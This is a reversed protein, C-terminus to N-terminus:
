RRGTKRTTKSTAHTTVFAPTPSRRELLADHAPAGVHRVIWPLPWAVVNFASHVVFCTVDRSAVTSSAGHRDIRTVPQSRLSLRGTAVDHVCHAVGIAAYAGLLHTLM